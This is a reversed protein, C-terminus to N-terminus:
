GRGSPAGGAARSSRSSTAATPRRTAGASRQARRKPANGRSSAAGRTAIECECFVRAPEVWRPAAQGVLGFTPPTKELAARILARYRPEFVHLRMRQRPLIHDLV